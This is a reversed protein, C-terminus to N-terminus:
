LLCIHVKIAVSVIKGSQQIKLEDHIELKTYQQFAQLVSAM